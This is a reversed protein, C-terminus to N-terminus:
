AVPIEIKKKVMMAALGGPPQGFPNPPPAPATLLEEGPEPMPRGYKKYAYSQGLPLGMATLKEDVQAEAVLDVPDKIPYKIFPVNSDWGFNFGVWPWLVQWRYTEELGGADDKSLDSRVKGQEPSSGLKGPTGETTATQGLIGIQCYKDMRDLFRDYVDNSAQTGKAELIELMTTDSIMAGADSGLDRIAQRLVKKDDEGAGPTFKGLRLPQAFKEIFIIWDKLDFFTLMHLFSAARLIGGRQAFGSRATYRHYVVAFAGAPGYKEVLDEGRIPQEDTLLRPFRPLRANWDASMEYFTWRKQPIWDFCHIWIQKGQNEWRPAITGFAKGIADLLHLSATKHNVNQWNERFADAIKKDQSSKSFPLIEPEIGQVALRRTHLLSGIMINKEEIEEFLECQRLIHGADAEKLISALREPTLGASPYTSWQDRVRVMGIDESIPKTPPKEIIRGYPDVLAM